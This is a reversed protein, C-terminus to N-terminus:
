NGRILHILWRTFKFGFVGLEFTIMVGLCTLLTSVPFLWSMASVYGMITAIATAIQTPFAVVPLLAILFAVFGAFISIFFGSIM